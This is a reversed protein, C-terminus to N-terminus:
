ILEEQFEENYKIIQGEGNYVRWEQCLEYPTEYKLEQHPFKSCYELNFVRAYKVGTEKDLEIIEKTDMNIIYIYDINKIYSWPELKLIAVTAASMFLICILVITYM